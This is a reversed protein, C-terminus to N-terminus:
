KYGLTAYSKNFQYLYYKNFNFRLTINNNIIIFIVMLQINTPSSMTLEKTLTVICRESESRPLMHIVSLTM